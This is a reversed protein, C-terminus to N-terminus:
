LYYIDITLLVYTVNLNSKLPKYMASISISDSGYVVQHNQLEIVPQIYEVENTRLLYPLTPSSDNVFLYTYYNVNSQVEQIAYTENINSYVKPVYGIVYMEAPIENTSTELTYPNYLQALIHNNSQLQTKVFHEALPLSDDVNQELTLAYISNINFHENSVNASVRLYSPTKNM